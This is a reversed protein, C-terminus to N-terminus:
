AGHVAEEVRLVAYGLRALARCVEVNDDVVLAASRKPCARMVARVKWEAEPTADAPARMEVHANAANMEPLHARLWALTEDRVTDRRSTVFVAIGGSALWAQAFPVVRTPEDHAFDCAYYANWDGRAAADRRDTPVRALTGDIDCILYM